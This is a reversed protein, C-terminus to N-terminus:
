RVRRSSSPPPADEDLPAFLADVDQESFGAQVAEDGLLTASLWRKKQQLRVVREEVSGAVFLNYVFVPRSQGIRYARDTAQAQAAPNWWPDYHIVTDASTLNLGTGGAKLSILFVDADGREFADVRAQRDKTAGTLILHEVQRERLGDAVLALMSTFQSFLLVRHGQALQADLLEFLADYKASEKINKAADMNVLRPDCCVQRLKMLADLIAITSAALGKGRIVKRVDAHAAVRIHEYLDRQKGSLEVRHFLETKPPLEKAVDRKVRRLIYPSVLDKLAILREEDRLQEIPKRYWRVFALEDGLLGPNLVDFLAWLEGLNNEVPTGSLALRHRASVGKIARHVQSRTNKIAQAEDMVLIHFTTGVLLEEDRVLIPYTTIVVDSAAAQARRGHRETGHLITVSLHPAFRELERAWNGVLSTPAVILAPSTLRGEAKETALHAITQLTKGLGMDDALVGGVEEAVLHQLFAVGEAQYPRLTAKLEAPPPAAAPRSTLVRARETLRAPDNWALKTGQSKFAEDLKALAPARVAPFTIKGATPKKQKIGQYLEIVVHILARLREPAVSVHHTDDVKLAYSSRFRRSLARLGDAEDADGLLEVILPLLDVQAGDVEIGLELSFWGPLEADPEVKAFWPSDAPAVRFPFSADIDIQFGAARLQPLAQSTFACFAHSGADIRVVYEADCGPPAAIDDFCALELAGLRELLRRASAEGVSDRDVHALSGGGSKFIRQREDSARVRTGDYDFSLEILPAVIEEFDDSLGSTSSVLVPEAFLRIHPVFRGRSTAHSASIGQVM